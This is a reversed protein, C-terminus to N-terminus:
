TKKAAGQSLDILYHFFASCHVLFYKAEAFTLDPKETLAHRIGNADSSYGYLKLWAERLAPHLVIGASALAKLADGLTAKQDGVIERCTAEVASVSEKVSNRFDPAERDSLKAAAASLHTGVADWGKAATLADAVADLELENTIPVLTTGAFRYASMERELVTNVAGCFTRADYGPLSSALWEMLDYIEYWQAEDFAKRIIRIFESPKYPLEDLPVHFFEDWLRRYFKYRSASELVSHEEAEELVLALIQNWIGVRLEVDISDKQLLERGARAGIRESFRM